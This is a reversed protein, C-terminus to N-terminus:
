LEDATSFPGQPTGYEDGCFLHTCHLPQGHISEMKASHFSRLQGLYEATQRALKERDSQPISPWIEELPVGPVREVIQFYREGETWERVTIPVPITTNEGLFRTNIVEYSPPHHGRDKLLFKSGLSWYGRNSAGYFLRVSSKYSCRRQQDPTWKCAPCADSPVESSPAM